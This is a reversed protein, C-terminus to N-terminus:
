ILAWSILAMKPEKGNQLLLLEFDADFVLTVVIIICTIKKEFSCVQFKAIKSLIITEYYFQFFFRTSRFECSFNSWVVSLITKNSM